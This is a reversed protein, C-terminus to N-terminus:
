RTIEAYCNPCQYYKTESGTRSTTAGRLEWHTGCECYGGNWTEKKVKSDLTLGVSVLLWFFLVAITGGLKHKLDVGCALFMIIFPVCILSFFGFVIWFGTM